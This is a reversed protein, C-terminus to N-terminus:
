NGVYKKSFFYKLSKSRLKVPKALTPQNKDGHILNAKSLNLFGNILTILRKTTIGQMFAPKQWVWWLNHRAMYMQYASQM